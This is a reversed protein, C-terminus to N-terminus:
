CPRVSVSEVPCMCHSSRTPWSAEAVGALTASTLWQDITKTPLDALSALQRGPLRSASPLRALCFGLRLVTHRVSPNEGLFSPFNDGQM